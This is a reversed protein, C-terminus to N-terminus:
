RGGAILITEGSIYSAGDSALFVVVDAVEQATGMRGMPTGAVVRAVREPSSHRTQFDTDIASPAVGNVRIGKLALEKALGKTFINLAGKASAYHLSDGSGGHCGAISSVNVIAARDSRALWPLCLRTIHVPAMLNIEVAARWLHDDSEEFTARKVVDGVNNVLIDLRGVDVIAARLDADSFADTHDCLVGTVQVHKTRAWEKLTVVSNDNTRYTFLVHAGQSALSMVVARGIGKSAGTVLATRNSFVNTLIANDLM